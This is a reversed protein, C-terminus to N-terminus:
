SRGLDHGNEEGESKVPDGAVPRGASGVRREEVKSWRINRFFAEIYRTRDMGSYAHEWVDMVLLPTFGAPHGEEHLTIWHNSLRGGVPDQYLIVWGVGRMQGMARFEEEWEIFSDWGAALGESLAPSPRSAQPSLNEFYLEHLRMGNVEFGVRRTMESWEPGGLEAEQGRRSLLNMNRVYGEYLKLHAAVLADPINKLGVLASFDRAIYPPRGAVKQVGSGWDIIM